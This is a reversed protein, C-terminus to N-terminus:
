QSLDLEKLSEIEKRQKTNIEEAAKSQLNSLVDSVLLPPCVCTHVSVRVCVRICVLMRVCVCVCIHVYTHVCM